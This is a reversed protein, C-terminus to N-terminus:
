IKGKEVLSYIWKKVTQTLGYSWDMGIIQPRNWDHEPEKPHIKFREFNSLYFHGFNSNTDGVIMIKDANVEVNYQGFTRSFTTKTM